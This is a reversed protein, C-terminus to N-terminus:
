SPLGFLLPLISLVPESYHGTASIPTLSTSSSTGGRSMVEGTEYIIRSVRMYTQRKNKLDLMIKTGTLEKRRTKHVFIEM